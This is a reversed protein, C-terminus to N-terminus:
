PEYESDSTLVEVGDAATPPARWGSTIYPGEVSRLRNDVLREQGRVRARGPAPEEHGSGKREHRQSDAGMQLGPHNLSTRMM